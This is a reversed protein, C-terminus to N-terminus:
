GTTSKINLQPFLGLSLPSTSPRLAWLENSSFACSWLGTFLSFQSMRSCHCQPPTFRPPLVIFFFFVWRLWILLSTVCFPQALSPVLKCCLHPRWMTVENMWDVVTLDGSHGSLLSKFSPCCSAFPLSTLFSNMGVESGNIGLDNRLPASFERNRQPFPILHCNSSTLPFPCNPGTRLSLCPISQLSLLLQSRVKTSQNGMHQWHAATHGRVEKEKCHWLKLLLAHIGDVQGEARDGELQVRLVRHQTRPDRRRQPPRIRELPVM